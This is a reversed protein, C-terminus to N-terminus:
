HRFKIDYTHHWLQNVKLTVFQAEYCCIQKDLRDILWSCRLRRWCIQKNIQKTIKCLTFIEEKRGWPLNDDHERHKSFFYRHNNENKSSGKWTTSQRIQPSGCERRRKAKTSNASSHLNSTKAQFTRLVVSYEFALMSDITASEALAARLRQPVINPKEGNFTRGEFVAIKGTFGVNRGLTRIFIKCQEKDLFSCFKSM